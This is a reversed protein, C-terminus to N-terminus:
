VMRADTTDCTECAAPLLRYQSSDLRCDNLLKSESHVLRRFVVVLDLLREVMCHCLSWAVAHISRKKPQAVENPRSRSRRLLITAPLVPSALLPQILEFM